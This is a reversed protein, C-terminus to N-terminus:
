QMKEINLNIKCIEVKMEEIKTKTVDVEEQTQSIYTQRADLEPKLVKEINSSSREISYTSENCKNRLDHLTKLKSSILSRMETMTASNKLMQKKFYDDTAMSGINADNDICNREHRGPKDNVMTTEIGQLIQMNVCLTDVIDTASQNLGSLEKNAHTHNNALDHQLKSELNLQEKLKNSNAEIEQVEIVISRRLDDNVSVSTGFNLIGSDYTENDTSSQTPTFSSKKKMLDQRKMMIPIAQRLSSEDNFLISTFYILHL